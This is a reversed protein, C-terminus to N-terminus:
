AHRYMEQANARTRVAPYIHALKVFRATFHVNVDSGVQFRAPQEKIGLHIAEKPNRVYLAAMIIISVLLLM